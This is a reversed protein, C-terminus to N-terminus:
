KSIKIGTKNYFWNEADIYEKRDDLDYISINLYKNYKSIITLPNHTVIIISCDNIDCINKIMNYVALTYKQQFKFDLGEDAEDFIFLSKNGLKHNKKVQNIFKGLIGISKEGGSKKQLFLGGGCILASATSANDYSLPDDSVRDLCFVEDYEDLGIIDCHVYFQAKNTILSLSEMNDFLDKNSKKLSDKHSRIGRCITSKGSGNNGVLFLIKNFSTNLEINEDKKFKRFDSKINISIM